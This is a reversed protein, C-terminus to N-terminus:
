PTAGRADAPRADAPRADAPRADAPRADTPRAGVDVRLTHTFREGRADAVFRFEWLGARSLGVPARYHGAAAAALTTRVIASGRALPFAEVTISGSDVPAGGREALVVDLTQTGAVLPAALKLTWGLAASHRVQAMHEDWSIGKQYYNSELAFSPDDVAIKVMVVLGVMLAGLMSVIFIPWRLARPPSQETAPRNM